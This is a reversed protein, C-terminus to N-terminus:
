DRDDMSAEATVYGTAGAEACEIIDPANEEVAFALVKCDIAEARLERILELSERM